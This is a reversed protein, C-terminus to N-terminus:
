KSAETTYMKNIAVLATAGCASIVQWFLLITHPATNSMSLRAEVCVVLMNTKMSDFGADIQIENKTAEAM